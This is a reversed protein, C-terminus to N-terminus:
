CGFLLTKPIGSLSSHSLAPHGSLMRQPTGDVADRRALHFGPTLLQASTFIADPNTTSVKKQIFESQPGPPTKVYILAADALGLLKDPEQLGQGSLNFTNNQDVDDFAFLFGLGIEAEIDGTSSKFVNILGNPPPDYIDLGFKFPLTTKLATVSPGEEVIQAETFLVWEIGVSPALATSEDGAIIGCATVLPTKESNGYAADEGTYTGSVVKDGCGSGGCIALVFCLITTHLPLVNVILSKFLM